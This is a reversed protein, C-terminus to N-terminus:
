RPQHILFCKGPRILFPLRRWQGGGHNIFDMEARERRRSSKKGRNFFQIMEDRKAHRVHFQHRHHFEGAIVAPAIVAHIQERRMMGITRRVIQFFQHIGAVRASQADNQVDDIIMQTRRSIIECFKRRIERLTVRRGPAFSQIIVARVAFVHATKKAVVRQHPQAIKM